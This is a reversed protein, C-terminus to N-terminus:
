PVYGIWKMKVPRERGEQVAVVVFLVLSRPAHGQWDLTLGARIQAEYPGLAPDAYIPETFGVRGRKDVAIRFIAYAPGSLASPDPLSGPKTGLKFPVQVTQVHPPFKLILHLKRGDAGPLKMQTGDWGLDPVSAADNQVCRRVAECFGPTSCAVVEIDTLRGGTDTYRM